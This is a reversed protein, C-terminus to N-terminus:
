EAESRLASRVGCRKYYAVSCLQSGGLDGAPLSFSCKALTWNLKFGVTRKSYGFGSCPILIFQGHLLVPRAPIRERVGQGLLRELQVWNDIIIGNCTDRFTWWTWGITGINRVPNTTYSQVKANWSTSNVVWVDKLVVATTVGAFNPYSTTAYALASRVQCIGLAIALAASLWFKSRRIM